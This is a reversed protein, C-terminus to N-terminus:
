RGSCYKGREEEPCQNTEEGEMGEKKRRPGKGRLNRQEKRRHVTEKNKKGGTNQGKVRVTQHRQSGPLGGKVRLVTKKIGGRIPSPKVTGKKVENSAGGVKEETSPGVFTMRLLNQGNKIVKTDACKKVHTELRHLPWGARDPSGKLPGKQEMVNETALAGGGPRRGV